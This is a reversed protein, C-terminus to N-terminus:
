RHARPVSAMLCRDLELIRQPPLAALRDALAAGVAAGTPLRDAASADARAQDVLTWFEDIEVAVNQV